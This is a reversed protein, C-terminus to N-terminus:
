TDSIHGSPVRPIIDQWIPRTPEWVSGHYAMCGSSIEGFESLGLSFKCVKQGRFSCTRGFASTSSSSSRDVWIWTRYVVEHVYVHGPFHLGVHEKTHLVDPLTRASGNECILQPAMNYNMYFDQMVEYVLVSLLITIVITYLVHELHCSIGEVLGRGGVEFRLGSAWAKFGVGLFSWTATYYM